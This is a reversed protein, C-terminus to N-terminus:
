SAELSPYLLVLDGSLGARVRATVEDALVEEDIHAPATVDLRVPIAGATEVRAPARAGASVKAAGGGLLGEALARGLGRDAGIVLAVSGQIDM